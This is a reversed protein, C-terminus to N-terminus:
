KISSICRLVEIVILDGLEILIMFDNANM